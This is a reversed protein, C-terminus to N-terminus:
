SGTGEELCVILVDRSKASISQVNSDEAKEEDKLDEEANSVVSPTEEGAHNAAHDELDQTVHTPNLHM